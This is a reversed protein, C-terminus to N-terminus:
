IMDAIVGALIEVGMTIKSVPLDGYTLRIYNNSYNSPLFADGTVFAVNQKVAEKFVEESDFSEPLTLWVFLGGKPKTWSVQGPMYKELASLLADRKKRYISRMKETFSDIYGMRMYDYAIMQSFTPTCADFSQKQLELKEVLEKQGVIWGVRIGPSLIKSFTGLYIVSGGTDLCKIPKYDKEEGYFYLDGYPDDEIIPINYKSSVEILERRRAQTLTIGSPNNFNPITYIFKVKKNESNIEEIKKVLEDIILGKDDMKVGVPKGMFSYFSAIAGIFSPIEVIVTDDKDIFLKSLLSLAQQSGTTVIIDQDTMLIKKKKEMWEKISDILPTYGKTTGYQLANKAKEYQWENIIAKVENFPLNESDPMGGAMSIIGPVNAMKFLERIKSSKLKLCSESFLPSYRM